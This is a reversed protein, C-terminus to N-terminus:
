RDTFRRAAAYGGSCLIGDQAVNLYLRQPFHRFELHRQPPPSDSLFRPVFFFADSETGVDSAEQGRLNYRALM